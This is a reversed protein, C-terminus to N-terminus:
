KDHTLGALAGHTSSRILRAQGASARMARGAAIARVVRVSSANGVVQAIGDWALGYRLIGDAFNSM